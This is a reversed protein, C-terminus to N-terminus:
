RTKSRREEEKRRKIIEKLSFKASRTEEDMDLIDEKRMRKTIKEMVEDYNGKHVVYEACIEPRWTQYKRLKLKQLPQFKSTEDRKFELFGYFGKYCIITDPEGTPTTANEQLKWVFAGKKRLDKIFEGQLDKELKTTM